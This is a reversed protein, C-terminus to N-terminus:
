SETRLRDLIAQLIAAGPKSPHFDVVVNAARSSQVGTSGPLTMQRRAASVTRWVSVQVLAPDGATGFLRGAEVLLVVQGRIKTPGSLVIGQRAFAAKVQPLTLTHSTGGGCGALALVALSLGLRFRM